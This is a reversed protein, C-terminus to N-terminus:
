LQNDHVPNITRSDITYVKKDVKKLLNTTKAHHYEGYLLAYCAAMIFIIGAPVGGLATKIRDWISNQVVESFVPM